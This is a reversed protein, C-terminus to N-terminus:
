GGTFTPDTNKNPLLISSRDFIRLLYQVTMQQLEPDRASLLFFVSPHLVVAIGIAIIAIGSGSILSSFFAM